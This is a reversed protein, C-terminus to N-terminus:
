RASSSSKSERRMRSSPYSARYLAYDDGEGTGLSTEKSDTLSFVAFYTMWERINLRLM